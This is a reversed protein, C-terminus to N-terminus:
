ITSYPGVIILITYLPGPVHGVFRKAFSFNRVCLSTDLLGGQFRPPIYNSVWPLRKKERVGNRVGGPLVCPTLLPTRYTIITSIGFGHDITSLQRFKKIADLSTDKPHM